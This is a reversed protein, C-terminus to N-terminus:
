EEVAARMAEVKDTLVDIMEPLTLGTDEAEGILGELRDRFESVSM